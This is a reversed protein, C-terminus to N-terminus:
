LRARTSDVGLCHNVSRRLSQIRAYRLCTIAGSPSEVLLPRTVKQNNAAIKLGVGTELIRIARSLRLASPAITSCGSLDNKRLGGGAVGSCQREDKSLARLTAQDTATRRPSLDPKLRMRYRCRERSWGLQDSHSCPQLRHLGDRARRWHMPARVNQRNSHSGRCACRICARKM